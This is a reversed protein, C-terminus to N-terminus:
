LYLHIFCTDFVTNLWKLGNMVKQYGVKHSDTQCCCDRGGNQSRFNKDERSIIKSIIERATNHSITMM